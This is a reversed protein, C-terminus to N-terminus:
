RSYNSISFINLFNYGYFVKDLKLRTICTGKIEKLLARQIAIGITDPQGECTSLSYFM